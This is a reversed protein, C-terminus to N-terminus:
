EYRLAILPDVSSARRAPLWVAIFAVLTLLAPVAAFVLPDSPPRRLPVGLHVALAAQAGLALRIWIEQMRQEHIAIPKLLVAAGSENM